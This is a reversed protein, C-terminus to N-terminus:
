HVEHYAGSPSYGQTLRALSWAAYCEGRRQQFVHLDMEDPIM